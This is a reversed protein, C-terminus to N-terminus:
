SRTGGLREKPLFLFTPTFNFRKWCQYGAGSLYSQVDSFADRMIEVYLIPRQRTLTQAAGRLVDLEWGEVDVKIIDIRAENRLEDDLVVMDIPGDPDLNVTAMGTNEMSGSAVRTKGRQSGVAANRTTCFNELGNAMVNAELCRFAEPNPEFALSRLGLVQGFYISHNGVHAGVDVAFEPFFLRSRADALLEAEYFTGTQRIMQAIHDQGSPFTLSISKGASNFGVVRDNM